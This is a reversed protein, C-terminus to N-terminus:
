KKRAKGEGEGNKRRRRRKRSEIESECEIPKGKEIRKMGKARKSVCFWPGRMRIEKAM